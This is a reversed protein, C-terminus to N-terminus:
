KRLKPAPGSFLGDPDVDEFGSTLLKEMDVVANLYRDEAAIVDLRSSAASLAASVEAASLATYVTQSHISKHHLAKKRFIPDIGFRKLRRGYAHRHGHPTTGRGKEVSLGIRKVALAHAQKYNPICYMGGVNAHQEVVFAYPHFREISALYRLYVKWLRLFVRGLETPFWYAQMFYEGDLLPEKWGASHHDILETRPRLAYKGALYAARNCKVPLGREDLWDAPAEGLSPHHIRVQAVTPDFPDPRVDDIWLHFCESLRFGAGHMLLTILCDRVNLRQMPAAKGTGGRRIFGNLLLDTFHKEPFAVADDEFGVKPMRKAVTRGLMPTSTAAPGWAHGLFARSRRHERAALVVLADYRSTAHRPNLPQRDLETALWNSFDSLRTLLNRVSENDLPKWYLGSPDLGDSGITGTYLRQIFTHFLEEPSSFYQANAAMYALLLKVAQVVKQMWSLSRVHRHYLLYDVLPMLPGDSTLLIPIESVAGTADTVVKARISVCEM